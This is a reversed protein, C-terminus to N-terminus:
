YTAADLIVVDPRGDVTIVVPRGTEHVQRLVEETRKKLETLTKFDETLSFTM